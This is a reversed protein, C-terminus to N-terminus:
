GGMLWHIYDQGAGYPACHVDAIFNGDTFIGDTKIYAGFGQSGGDGVGVHQCFDDAADEATAEDLDAVEACYNDYASMQVYPMPCSAGGVLMIWTLM